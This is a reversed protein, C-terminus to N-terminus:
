TRGDGFDGEDRITQAGAGHASAVSLAWACERFHEPTMPPMGGVDRLREWLSLVPEAPMHKLISDIKAIEEASRM